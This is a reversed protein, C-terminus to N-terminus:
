MPVNIMDGGIESLLYKLDLKLFFIGAMREFSIVNLSHLARLSHRVTEGLRLVRCSLPRGSLSLSRIAKVFTFVFQPYSKCDTSNEKLSTKKKKNLSLSDYFRISM